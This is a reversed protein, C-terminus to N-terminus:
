VALTLLRQMVSGVRLIDTLQMVQLSQESEGVAGPVAEIYGATTPCHTQLIHRVFTITSCSIVSAVDCVQGSRVGVQVHTMYALGASQACLTLAHLAWLAAHGAPRRAVAMLAGVSSPVM